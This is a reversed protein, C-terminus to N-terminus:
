PAPLLPAQPLEALTTVYTQESATSAGSIILCPTEPKVGAAYLEAAVASYDSPMYVVFTSKPGNGDAASPQSSQLPAPADSCSLSTPAFDTASAACHHGTMFVISSSVHRETLSIGAAAAAGTAATVGPVVEFDVGAEHL